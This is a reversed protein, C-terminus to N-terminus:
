NSCQMNTCANCTILPLSTTYSVQTYFRKQTFHEALYQGSESVQQIGLRCSDSNPSDSTMVVNILENWCQPLIEATETGIFLIIIILILHTIEHSIICMCTVINVYSIIYMYQATSYLVNCCLVACYLVTCYLVTYYLVTCYLVTCCLVAYCLVTCYLVTCCLVAYCLVTCYLLTSCKCM